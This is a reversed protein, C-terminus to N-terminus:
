EFVAVRQETLVDETWNEVKTSQKPYHRYCGAVFDQGKDLYGENRFDKAEYPLDIWSRTKGIAYTGANNWVWDPTPWLRISDKAHIATYFEQDPGGQGHHGMQVYDSRVEEASRYELLRKGEDEACDGLFLVSNEKYIMKLIVSTSNISHAGDWWTMLVNFDVGDVRITLGQDVTEENIVAGNILNYYYGTEGEPAIWKEEPISAGDIGQFGVTEYYRDMGKILVDLTPQDYDSDGAKSRWEVGYEPFDFYFNNIRFNDSEKYRRLMKALEYYHDWHIHSLFWAEIEFYDDQGLGLISRIAAPLYPPANMGTGDIGGDIVIIKKNPTVIVYSMMLSQSEPALQYLEITGTPEAGATETEVTTETEATMEPLLKTETEVDDEKDPEAETISVAPNQITEGSDSYQNPEARGGCGSLLGVMGVLILLFLLIGKKEQKSM